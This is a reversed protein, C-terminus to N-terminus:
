FDEGLTPAHDSLKGDVLTVLRDAVDLIRNDHTVMVITNGFEKSLRQLHSVIERGTPGDLSATPEDALIIAPQHVLARAIAVRQKQGGSLQEPRKHVHDSLDVEGLIDLARQRAKGPTMKSDFTLPMMVNQVVSLSSILHHSQFIFGINRRVAVLERQKATEIRQGDIEISGEQITRLGAVLKLLTTKGSGSPGAIITIEGQTFDATIGHLVTQQTEGHGFAYRLDSIKIVSM